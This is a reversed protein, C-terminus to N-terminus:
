RRVRRSKLRRSHRGEPATCAEQRQRTSQTPLRVQCYFIVLLVVLCFVVSTLPRALWILVQDQYESLAAFNHAGSWLAGGWVSLLCHALLFQRLAQGSFCLEGQLNEPNLTPM